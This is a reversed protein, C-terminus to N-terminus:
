ELLLWGLYGLYAAIFAGGELRSMRHGSLLVEARDERDREACWDCTVWEIVDGTWGQAHRVFRFCRGCYVESRAM